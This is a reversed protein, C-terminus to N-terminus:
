RKPLYSATGEYTDNANLLSDWKVMTVNSQFSTLAKNYRDMRGLIDRMVPSAQAM